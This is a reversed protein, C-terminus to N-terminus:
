HVSERVLQVLNVLLDSLAGLTKGRRPKTESVSEMIRVCELACGWSMTIGSGGHGYNHIIMGNKTDLGLRVGEGQPDRYYRYGVRGVLRRNTLSCGFWNHLISENLDIIPLPIGCGNLLREDCVASAGQWQGAHDISGPERTQGLVWGDSRPFFHVYEAKGDARGFIAAPPTYNYAIPVEEPSFLCPAGPVLVQKGRIITAPSSDDVFEIAGYGLCNVVPRGAACNLTEDLSNVKAIEVMGGLERFLSWLFALYHPMDAFYTNFVWGWLYEADPRAPPNITRKLIKPTGDFKHFGMRYSSLPAEEPEEEYVEYMRYQEVGSKCVTSLYRFVAQSAASIQLLNTVRLNHPYASAMAYSTPVMCRNGEGNAQLPVFETLIGTRVGVSQLAVATTIGTIGGGLVLADCHAMRAMSNDLRKKLTPLLSM